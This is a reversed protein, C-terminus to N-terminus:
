SQQYVQVTLIQYALYFMRMRDKDSIYLRKGEARARTKDLFNIQFIETKISFPTYIMM